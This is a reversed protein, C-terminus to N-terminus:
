EYGTINSEKLYIFSQPPAKIGYDGLELPENYKVINCLQYAIAVSRDEYYKEFFEKKIGSKQKTIKWVDKPSGEIIDKVNAEGVVKRVPSTSYIIIKDVKRHCKVKRYEYEKKGIFINEVHEPNISLLIKCM